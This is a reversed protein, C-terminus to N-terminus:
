QFYHKLENVEECDVTPDISITANHKNMQTSQNSMGTHLLSSCSPMHCTHKDTYAAYLAIHM